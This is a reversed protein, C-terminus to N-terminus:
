ELLANRMLDQNKRQKREKEERELKRISKYGNRRQHCKLLAYYIIAAFFGVCICSLSFVWHPNYPNILNNGYQSDSSDPENNNSQPDGVSVSKHYAEKGYRDRGCNEYENLYWLHSNETGKWLSYECEADEEGSGDCVRYKLADSHSYYFIETATHYFGDYGLFKGPVIPIPDNRNVIRWNMSIQPLADFYKALYKNAWRPAGFTYIQVTM